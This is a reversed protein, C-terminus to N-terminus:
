PIPIPWNGFAATQQIVALRHENAFGKGLDEVTNVLYFRGSGAPVEVIDRQGTVLSRVDTLSPLLLQAYMLSAAHFQDSVRRGYALNCVPSIRPPAPPPAAQSFLNCVLNFTPLSFSM